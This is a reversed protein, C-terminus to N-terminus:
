NIINGYIVIEKIYGTLYSLAPLMIVYVTSLVLLDNSVKELCREM